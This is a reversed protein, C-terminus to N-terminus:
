EKDDAEAEKIKKDLAERQDKLEEINVTDIAKKQAATIKTRHVTEDGNPYIITSEKTWTGDKNDKYIISIPSVVKPVPRFKFINWM